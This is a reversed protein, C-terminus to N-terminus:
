KVENRISNTSNKEKEMDRNIRSIIATITRESVIGKSLAVLKKAPMDLILHEMMQKQKSAAVKEVETLNEDEYKALAQKLISNVFREGVPHEKLVSLPSYLDIKPFYKEHVTLEIQGSLRIDQSSSGLLIEYKGSDAKWCNYKTSYYKFDRPKLFFQVMKEEGQKLHVKEFGKLEKIPRIVDSEVDKVYLQVVEKGELKGTNKVKCQVLVNQSDNIRASDIKFNSYQFTTYSLGYGFPFMTKIEKKDYYRYGVFTGEGYHTEGGEGPWTLYSPIDHLNSPFTEALKGSPNVEGMLVDVIAAGGGQGGLYAEVVGEVKNLWPMSVPSGNQLVVIVKKSINSIKDILENHGKPMDLNVRDFGESEYIDPLGAFIVTVDSKRALKEAEQLLLENTEGNKHYGQAYSIKWRRGAKDKFAGLSNELRTPNVLSSGAGQFRPSKAFGGIIALTLKDKQKLPLIEGENKLLVIGESSIHRALKHNDEKKFDPTKSPNATLKFILHLNNRVVKNLDKEDLEGARVAEIIKKANIGNDYPMQLDLGAKIGEIRNDVAGWDSVVIGKFGFENRLIENLLLKNESCYVGNVKNYACMVSTPQAEKIVIEFAPLYIERMTREDIEASMFMREYEQNNVTYHKVSTGIGKSQVGNIYAAAMNGSLIPDESFYEFNRGGLPSRKINVGPGLLMNIGSHRAESGLAQGLKFMLEKDWTSALLSATPFCTAPKSLGFKKSTDKLRVGHPGDTMLISPIGLHEIEQTHWMDKGACLSAKEELTLQGIIQNIKEDTIQSYVTEINNLLFVVSLFCVLISKKIYSKM